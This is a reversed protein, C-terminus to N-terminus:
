APLLAKVADVIAQLDYPKGIVEFVPQEDAGAVQRVRAPNTSTLVFKRKQTSPLARLHEYMLWSRDYPPPLDLILVRPDHEELFAGFDVTGRKIENVHMSVGVMGNSELLMRLMEVTDDNTNLIAVVPPGKPAM